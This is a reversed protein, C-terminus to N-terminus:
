VEKLFQRILALLVETRNTYLRLKWAEDFKEILQKPCNFNVLITETM